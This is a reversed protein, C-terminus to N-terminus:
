TANELLNSIQECEVVWLFAQQGPRARSHHGIVHLTKPYELAVGGQHTWVIRNDIVVEPDCRFFIQFKRKQGRTEFAIDKSTERQQVHCDLSYSNTWSEGEFDTVSQSQVVIRDGTAMRLYSSPAITLPTCSRVAPYVAPEPSPDDTESMFDDSMLLIPGWYQWPVNDM